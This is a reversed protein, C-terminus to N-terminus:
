TQYYAQWTSQSKAFAISDVAAAVFFQKRHVGSKVWSFVVFFAAFLREVM